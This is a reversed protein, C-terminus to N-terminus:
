ALAKAADRILGPGEYIFGTYVQVLSAGAAIKNRADQASHIGGVGIIPIRGDLAKSLSKIVQDSKATLPKGSLGGAETSVPHQEVGERGATTNTAIVGDIEHALFQAALQQIENPELDPAIKLVLPVYRGHREALKYQESKLTTLLEDLAAGFQLQRLGPTNPSSINVVVYDAHAYVKEYCILYDATAEEVPTTLNKGINIGIIGRYGQKRAHQVRQVLHDVGKNNFGMRNIIARQSKLRFLRPMPNGPQPKPTVTGVEIFGFGLQALGLIHDANKDLGASLGVSNAFELGMVHKPAYVAHNLWTKNPLLGLVDIANMSFDHATESSLKFLASRALSYFM